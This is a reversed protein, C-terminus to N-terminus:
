VRVWQKSAELKDLADQSAFLRIYGCEGCVTPIMKAMSLRRANLRPLLIPEYAGGSDIEETYRYIKDSHCEPCNGILKNTADLENIDVGLAVALARKSQLSATAQSEIRQITRLNLGSEAALAEQSWSNAKRLKIILDGNVKM